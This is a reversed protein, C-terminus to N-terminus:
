YNCCFRVVKSHAPNQFANVCYLYVNNAKFAGWFFGGEIKAIEHKM